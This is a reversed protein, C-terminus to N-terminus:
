PSSYRTIAANCLCCSRRATEPTTRQVRLGLEPDRTELQLNPEHDDPLEGIKVAVTQENRDRVLKLTIRQGPPTDAIISPFDASRPVSKGNFEVIVDGAKVGAEAAPSAGAVETVFAVVLMTRKAIAAFSPPRAGEVANFSAAGAHAAALALFAALIVAAGTRRQPLNMKQRATM